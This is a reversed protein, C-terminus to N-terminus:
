AVGVFLQSRWVQVIRRHASVRSSKRFRDTARIIGNSAASRFAAGVANPNQAKLFLPTSEELVMWVEDSTIESHKAAATAIAIYVCNFDTASMVRALGKDRAAASLQSSLM